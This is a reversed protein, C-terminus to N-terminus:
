LSMSLHHMFVFRSSTLRVRGPTIWVCNQLNEVKGLHWIVRLTDDTLNREIIFQNTGGPNTTLEEDAFLSRPEPPRESTHVVTTTETSTSLTTVDLISGKIVSIHAPKSMLVVRSGNGSKFLPVASCIWFGSHKDELPDIKLSCDRESRPDSKKFHPSFSTYENRVFPSKKSHFAWYCKKVPVNIVCGLTMGVGESLTANAPALEFQPDVNSGRDDRNSFFSFLALTQGTLGPFWFSDM